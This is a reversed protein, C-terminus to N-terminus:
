SGTQSRDGRAALDAAQALVAELGDLPNGKPRSGDCAAKMLKWIPSTRVVDLKTPEDIREVARGGRDYHILSAVVASGAECDFRFYGAVYAAPGGSTAKPQYFVEILWGDARDSERSPLRIYSPGEGGDTKVPYFQGDQPLDPQLAAQGLRDEPRVPAPASAVQAWVPNAGAILVALAMLGAVRISM